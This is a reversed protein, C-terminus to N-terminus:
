EHYFSFKLRSLEIPVSVFGHAPHYLSQPEIEPPSFVNKKQDSYRSQSQPGPEREGISAPALTAPSHFQGRWRAGLKRICPATGDSWMM